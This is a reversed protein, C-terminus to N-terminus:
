SSTIRLERMSLLMDFLCKLISMDDKEFDRKKELSAMTLANM